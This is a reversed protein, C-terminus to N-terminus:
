QKAGTLYTRTIIANIIAPVKEYNNKKSKTIRKNNTKTVPVPTM